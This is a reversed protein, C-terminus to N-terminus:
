IVPRSMVAPPLLQPLEVLPFNDNWPPLEGVFRVLEKSMKKILDDFELYVKTNRFEDDPYNLNSFDYRWQTQMAEAPYDEGAYRIPFVLGRPRHMTTLNLQQERERFSYWEAMCWESRFYNTSWVALLLGSRQLSRKLRGAM